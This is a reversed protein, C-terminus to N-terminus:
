EAAFPGIQPKGRTDAFEGLQIKAGRAIAAMEKGAQLCSFDGRDEWAWPGCLKVGAKIPADHV